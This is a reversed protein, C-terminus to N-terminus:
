SQKYITIINLMYGICIVILTKHFEGLTGVNCPDRMSKSPDSGEQGERIECVPDVTSYQFASVVHWGVLESQSTQTM